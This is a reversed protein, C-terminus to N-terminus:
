LKVKGELKCEYSEDAHKKWSTYLLPALEAGM